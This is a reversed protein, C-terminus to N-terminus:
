YPVSISRFREWKQICMLADIRPDGELLEIAPYAGAATIHAHPSSERLAQLVPTEMVFDGIGYRLCLLIRRAACFQM